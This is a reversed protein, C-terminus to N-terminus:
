GLLVDQAVAVLVSMPSRSQLAQLSPLYLFVWAMTVAALKQYGCSWLGREAESPGGGRAGQPWAADCEELEYLDFGAHEFTWAPAGSGGSYRSRHEVAEWTILFRVKFFALASM